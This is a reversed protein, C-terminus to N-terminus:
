GSIKQEGVGNKLSINGFFIKYRKIKTVKKMKM